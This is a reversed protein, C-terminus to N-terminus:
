ETYDLVAETIAGANELIDVAWENTQGSPLYVIVRYRGTKLGFVDFRGDPRLNTVAVEVNDPGIVSVTADAAFVAPLGRVQASLNRGPEALTFTEEAEQGEVVQVVRSVYSFGAPIVVVDYRGPGCPVTFGSVGSTHQGVVADVYKDLFGGGAGGADLDRVLTRTTGEFPQGSPYKVQIRLGTSLLNFDLLLDNMPPVAFAVKVNEYVLEHRGAALWTDYMGNGDTTFQRFGFVNASAGPLSASKTFVKLTANSVSLGARAVKGHVRVNQGLRLDVRQEERPGLTVYRVESRSPDQGRVEVRYIGASLGGIRFDGADNTTAEKEDRQFSDEQRLGGGGLAAVVIGKAPRAHDDTVRGMIGAGPKLFVPALAVPQSARVSVNFVWETRYQDHEVKVQYQSEPVGDIAFAGDAGSYTKHLVKSIVVFGIQAGAVPRQDVSSLVRGTVAGTYSPNLSVLPEEVEGGGQGANPSSPAGGTSARPPEVEVPPGDDRVLAPPQRHVDPGTNSASPNKLTKADRIGLLAVTGFFLLLVASLGLVFYVFRSTNRKHDAEM